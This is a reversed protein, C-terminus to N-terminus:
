CIYFGGCEKAFVAFSRVNDESFPYSKHFSDDELGSLFRKYEEEYTAIEGDKSLKDLRKGIKISKAKSIFHGSNSSGCEKDTDNLIDSCAESVYSWLPRWWWVNNRFYVGPNEGQWAKQADWDEPDKPQTTNITPNKGSLDFGVVSHEM